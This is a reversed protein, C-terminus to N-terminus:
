AAKSQVVWSRGADHTAIIKQKHNIAAWNAEAVKEMLDKPFTSKLLGLGIFMLRILKDNPATLVAGNEIRSYQESTLGVMAAFDKSSRGLRKRLFRLEDGTLTSDKTVVAVALANLLEPLCPIGVSEEGTDADATCEVGVLYVNPLGAGPYHYPKQKTSVKVEAKRAM